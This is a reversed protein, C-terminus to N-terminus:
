ARLAQRIRIANQKTGLVHPVATRQVMVLTNFLLLIFILLPTVSLPFAENKASGNEETHKTSLRGAEEQARPFLCTVPLSESEDKRDLCMSGCTGTM